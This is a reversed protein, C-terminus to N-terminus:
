REISRGLTFVGKVDIRKSHLHLYVFFNFNMEFMKGLVVM